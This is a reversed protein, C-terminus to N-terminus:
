AYEVLLNTGGHWNTFVINGLVAMEESIEQVMIDNDALNKKWKKVQNIRELSSLLKNWSKSRLVVTSDKINFLLAKKKTPINFSKETHQYITIKVPFVYNEEINSFEAVFNNKYNYWAPHTNHYVYDPRGDFKYLLISNGFPLISDHSAVGTDIIRNITKNLNDSLKM